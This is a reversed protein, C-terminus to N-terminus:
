SFFSPGLVTPANFWFDNAAAQTDRAHGIDDLKKLAAFLAMLAQAETTTYGLTGTLYSQGVRLLWSNFNAANNLQVLANLAISGAMADVTAKDQPLGVSM